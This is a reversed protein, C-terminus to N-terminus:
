AECGVTADVATSEQNTHGPRCAHRSKERCGPTQHAATARTRDACAPGVAMRQRIGAREDRGDEARAGLKRREFIVVPNVGIRTRRDDVFM